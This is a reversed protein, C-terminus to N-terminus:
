IADDSVYHLVIAMHEKISTEQNMVFCRLFGVKNM